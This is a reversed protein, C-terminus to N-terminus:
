ILKAVYNQANEYFIKNLIPKAIGKKELFGYLAPIKSINDLSEHMVGGDFDSGIAINNEFGIDLLHFINQYIAEFPHSALFDPYFCLGAIGNKEALLSLMDDTLNRPHDCVAACNSHTALPFDSIELAKYFSKKNLHSLDCAIKLRNMKEVVEYGFPTLCKESKIGGCIRNEGNWCLTLFSIGDEKLTFLRDSDDELVAGGEVSFYPTLNKPHVGLKQKFGDLMNKYLCFPEKQDDKIWIAFVQSWKTFIEGKSGSVSLQNVYFECDKKYCEYPTDCHLDFFDM